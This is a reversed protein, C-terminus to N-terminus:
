KVIKTAIVQPRILTHTIEAVFTPESFTNEKAWKLAEEHTNFFKLLNRNGAVYANETKKLM